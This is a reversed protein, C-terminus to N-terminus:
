PSKPFPLRSGNPLRELHGLYLGLLVLNIALPFSVVKTRTLPLKSILRLWPSTLKRRSFKIAELVEKPDELKFQLPVPEGERFERPRKEWETKVDKFKLDTKAFFFADPKGLRSFERCLGLFDVEGQIPINEGVEDRFERVAARVVIDRVESDDSLDMGRDIAGSGSSDLEGIRHAVGARERRTLILKSDDTLVLLNVGLHNGAETTRLDRLRPGPEFIDRVTRRSRDVEKTFSYDASRNTAAAFFFRSKKLICTVSSGNASIDVDMLRVVPNDPACPNARRYMCLAKNFWFEEAAPGSWFEGSKGNDWAAYIQTRPRNGERPNAYAVMACPLEYVRSRGPERYCLVDAGGHRPYHEHYLKRLRRPTLKLNPSAPRFWRNFAVWAVCSLLFFLFGFWFGGFENGLAGALLVFSTKLLFEITRETHGSM